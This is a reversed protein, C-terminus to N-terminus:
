RRGPDDGHDDDDDDDDDSLGFSEFRARRSRDITREGVCRDVCRYSDGFASQSDFRAIARETETETARDDDDDADDDTETTGTASNARTGDRHTKILDM